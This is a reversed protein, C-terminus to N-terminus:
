EDETLDAQGWKPDSLSEKSNFEMFLREAVELEPPKRKKREEEAQRRDAEKPKVFFLRDKWLDTEQGSYVGM